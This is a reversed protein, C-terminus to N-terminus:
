YKLDLPFDIQVMVATPLIISLSSFSKGISFQLYAVIGFIIYYVAGVVYWVRCSFSYKPRKLTEFWIKGGKTASILEILISIACLAITKLLASWTM